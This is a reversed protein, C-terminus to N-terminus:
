KSKPLILDFFKRFFYFTLPIGIFLGFPFGFYNSIIISPICFLTIFVILYLGVYSFIIFGKLFFLGTFILNTLIGYDKDSPSPPQWDNFDEVTKKFFLYDKYISEKLWKPIIKKIFRKM